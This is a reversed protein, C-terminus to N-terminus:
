EKQSSFFPSDQQLAQHLPAKASGPKLAQQQNPHPHRGHIYLLEFTATLYGDKDQYREKYIRECETMLEKSFTTDQRFFAKTQASYKLDKLLSQFSSYKVTLKDQNLVPLAFGAMKMLLGISHMDPLPSLRASVGGKLNIEAEVLSDRLEQLTGAVCLSALFLGDPNLLQHCQKLVRPLDNLWHLTLNSTILDFREEDPPSAEFPKQIIHHSTTDKPYPIDDWLTIHQIRGTELYHSVTYPSFFSMDLAHPFTQTLDLLCEKLHEATHQFLFGHDKFYPLARIKHLRLIHHNFIDQSQNQSATDTM